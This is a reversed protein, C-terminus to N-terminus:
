ELLLNVSAEVNGQFDLTNPQWGTSLLMYSMYSADQQHALVTRGISRGPLQIITLYKKFKALKKQMDPGQLALLYYTYMLVHVLTNPLIPFTAGGGSVPTGGKSVCSM